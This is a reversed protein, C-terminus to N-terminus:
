SILFAQGSRLSVCLVDHNLGKPQIGQLKTSQWVQPAARLDLLRRTAEIRTGNSTALASTLLCRMLHEELVGLIIDMSPRM